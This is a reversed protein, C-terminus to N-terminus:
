SKPKVPDSVPGTKAHRDELKDIGNVQHTIGRLLAGILMNSFGFLTMVFEKDSKWSVLMLALVAFILAMFSLIIKEDLVWMMIWKM